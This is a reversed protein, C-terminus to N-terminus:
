QPDFSEIAAVRIRAFGDEDVDWGSGPQSLAFQGKPADFELVANDAPSQRLASEFTAVGAGGADTVLDATLIKLEFGTGTPVSFWDGARAITTSVAAPSTDINLTLGLQSAGAVQPAAGAYGTSVGSFDPPELEFRNGLSSLQILAARWARFVAGDKELPPLEFNYLWNFSTSLTVQESGDAMRIRADQRSPEIRANRRKLKPGLEPLTILTM